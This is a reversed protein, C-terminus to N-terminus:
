GFCFLLLVVVITACKAGCLLMRTFMNVHCTLKANLFSLVTEAIGNICDLVWKNGSKLIPMTSFQGEKGFVARRLFSFVIHGRITQSNTNQHLWDLTMQALANAQKLLVHFFATRRITQSLSERQFWGFVGIGSHNIKTGVLRAKLFIQKARDIGFRFTLRDSFVNQKQM